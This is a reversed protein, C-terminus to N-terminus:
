APGNKREDEDPPAAASSGVIRRIRRGIYILAIGFLILLIGVPNRVGPQSATAVIGALLLLVGVVIFLTVTISKKNIKM